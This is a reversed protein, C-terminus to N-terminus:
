KDTSDILKGSRDFKISYGHYIAQVRKIMGDRKGFEGINLKDITSFDFDYEFLMPYEKDDIVVKRNSNTIFASYSKDQYDDGSVIFLEYNEGNNYMVFYCYENHKEIYESALIEVSDPIVYIISEQRQSYCSFFLM